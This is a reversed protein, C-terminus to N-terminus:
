PFEVVGISTAAVDDSLEVIIMSLVVIVEFLKVDVTSDVVVALIVVSANSVVVISFANDVLM